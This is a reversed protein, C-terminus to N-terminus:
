LLPALLLLLQLQLPSVRNNTDYFGNALITLPASRSPPISSAAKKCNEMLARAYIGSDVGLEIWGGVGDAIGSICFYCTIRV